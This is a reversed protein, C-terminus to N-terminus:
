AQAAQAACRAEDLPQGSGKFGAAAKDFQTRAGASDGELVLRHGRVEELAAYWGPLRMVVNALFETDEEWRALRERDGARAAAIAAPFALTIRCGPCTEIPGHVAEEAEELAALAGQEDHVNAWVRAGYIRDFLHFGVESERAVALAEGM